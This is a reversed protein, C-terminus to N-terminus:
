FRPSSAALNCIPSDTPTHHINLGSGFKAPVDKAKNVGILDVNESGYGVEDMLSFFRPVQRRSDHCWTGFFLKVTVGSLRQGLEKLQAKDTEYGDYQKAFWVNYDGTQLQERQVAGLLDPVSPDSVDLTEHEQATLGGALLLLAVGYSTANM